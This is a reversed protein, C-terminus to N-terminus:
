SLPQQSGLLFVVAAGLECEYTHVYIFIYWAHVTTQVINTLLQMKIIPFILSSAIIYLKDM